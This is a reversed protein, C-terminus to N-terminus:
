RPRAASAGSPTALRDAQSAAIRSPRPPWHTRKRATLLLVLMGLGTLAATSPEPIPMFRIEDVALMLVRGIDTNTSAIKLEAVRGAFSSVDGVWEGSYTLLDDGYTPSDPDLNVPRMYIWSGDLYVNFQYSSALLSLSRTGIPVTGTQSLFASVFSGLDGETVSGSRMGAAFQGSAPGFPPYAELLMYSQSTGLHGDLYYVFETNDGDSHSWGPIADNWDLLSLPPPRPDSLRAQEFDLNFFTQAGAPLALSAVLAILFAVTKM